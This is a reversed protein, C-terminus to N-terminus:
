TKLIIYKIQVKLIHNMKIVLLAMTKRHYFSSSIGTNTKSLIVRTKFKDYNYLVCQVSAFGKCM